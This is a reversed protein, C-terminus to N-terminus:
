KNFPQKRKCRIDNIRHVGLRIKIKNRGNSYPPKQKGDYNGNNKEGNKYCRKERHPM